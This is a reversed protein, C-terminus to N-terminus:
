DAGARERVRRYGLRDLRELLAIEEVTRWAALPYSASRVRTENRGLDDELATAGAVSVALALVGGPLWFRSIM